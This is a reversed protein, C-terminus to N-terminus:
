KIMDNIERHKTADALHSDIVTHSNVGKNLLMNHNISSQYQLVSQAGIRAQDFVGSIIDSADLVVDGNKGAVTVVADTNDIKEWVVGNFVVWDKANWGTIGDLMTSGSVSVVYYNGKMGISSTLMPTNDLADWSGKYLLQGDLQTLNVPIKGNEDLIALGNPTNELSIIVDTVASTFDSIFSATHTHVVSARMMIMDNIKSASWLNNGGMMMDNISHHINANNIHDDISPHSYVGRGLLNMHNIDSEYQLVSTKSIRESVFEGMNIDATTLSIDGYKGNVSSVFGSQVSTINVSSINFDIQTIPIKGGDNLTALGNQIGKQMNIRDDIANTLGAIDDSDHSHGVDVKNNLQSQIHTSSWLHTPSLVGDNIERHAMSSSLHADIENHTRVGDNLINNHNISSEHLLMNESQPSDKCMVTGNTDIRYMFQGSPCSGNIHIQIETTDIQNMGIKQSVYHTGNFILPKSQDNDTVDVDIMDQIRLGQNNKFFGEANIIAKVRPEFVNRKSVINKKSPHQIQVIQEIDSVRQELNTDTTNNTSLEHNGYPLFPSTFFLVLTTLFVLGIVLGTRTSKYSRRTMVQATKKKM